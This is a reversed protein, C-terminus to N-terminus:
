LMQPGRHLKTIKWRQSVGNQQVTVGYLADCQAMTGATHTVVIFQSEERFQAIYKLLAWMQRIWRLRSRM